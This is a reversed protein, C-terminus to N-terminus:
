EIDFFIDFISLVISRVTIHPHKANIYQVQTNVDIRSDSGNMNAVAISRLAQRAM